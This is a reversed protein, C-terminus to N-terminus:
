EATTEGEAPVLILLERLKEAMMAPSLANDAVIDIVKIQMEELAVLWEFMEQMGSVMMDEFTPGEPLLADLTAQRREETSMGDQEAM